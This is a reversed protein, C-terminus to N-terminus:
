KFEKQTKKYESILTKATEFDLKDNIALQKVKSIFHDQNSSEGINVKQIIKDLRLRVTPYTIGYHTAIEKLSGSAMIFNRIFIMDEDDLSSMWDPLFELAM